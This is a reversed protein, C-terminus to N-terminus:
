NTTQQCIVMLIKERAYDYTIQTQSSLFSVGPPSNISPSLQERSKHRLCGPSDPPFKNPQRPQEELTIAHIERERRGVAGNPFSFLEAKVLLVPGGSWFFVVVINRRPDPLFRTLVWRHIFPNLGSRLSHIRCFTAWWTNRGNM